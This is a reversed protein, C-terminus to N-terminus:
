LTIGIGKVSQSYKSSIKSHGEFTNILNRSLNKMLATAFNTDKERYKNEIEFENIIYKNDAPCSVCHFTAMDNSAEMVWVLSPNSKFHQPLKKHKKNLNTLEFGFKKEGFIHYRERISNGIFIPTLETIPLSSGLIMRLRNFPTVSGHQMLKFWSHLATIAKEQKTLDAKSITEQAAMDFLLDLTEILPTWTKQYKIKYYTLDDEEVEMRTSDTETMESKLQLDYNVKGDQFTRKRFRLSLKNKYLAMEPTDLYIDAYTVTSHKYFSLGQNDKFNSFDPTILEPFDIKLQQETDSKARPIVTMLLIIIAPFLVITTITKDKM